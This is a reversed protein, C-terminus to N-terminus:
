PTGVLQWPGLGFGLLGSSSGSIGNLISVAGVGNTNVWVLDSKSDGNLDALQAITWGSGYLPPLSGAVKVSGGNM